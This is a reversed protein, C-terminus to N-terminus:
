PLRESVAFARELTGHEEIRQYLRQRSIGILAALQGATLYSNSAKRQNARQQKATAWRVNGPEYDGDNDIRDLSHNKSPAAGMDEFFNIFSQWRECVKIGRGGYHKYVPVNPNGCRNKM